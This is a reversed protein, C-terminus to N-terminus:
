RHPTKFAAIALARSVKTPTTLLPYQIHRHAQLYRQLKAEDNLIQPALTALEPLWHKIFKAESDHTQAQSFPNMVRFYPQADTGISASWQWGGNNSAFDGDVLQQMFYAEGWRWDILLNKSLYMAVVMRLRNHMFGTANLCRMAADVLPVGTRGQCWMAFDATDYRWGVQQDLATLFAQGKVIDPRNVIVDYYFDRWALESLWRFVATDHAQETANQWYQQARLYCLRPSILGVALYPSLRSTAGLNDHLSPVDRASDYNAIDHEIFAALRTLAAEESAPYWRSSHTKIQALQKAFQSAIASCSSYATHYFMEVDYPMPLTSLDAACQVTNFDSGLPPPLLSLNATDLLAHWRKFFPTFVKYPQGQHTVIQQPAVITRDDYWHSTVGQQAGRQSVETDRQTEDVLYELNAFIDSVRQQQCLALVDSTQEAFTAATRVVLGINLKALQQQLAVIARLILDIQWLSKQHRQWQEPTIYVVALVAAQANKALECCRVLATNDCTRLDQRFWMLYTTAASPKAMKPCDPSLPHSLSM